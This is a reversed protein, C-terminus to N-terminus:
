PGFHREGGIEVTAALARTLWAKARGIAEALPAGRSLEVAIATGLACGTGRVKGVPARPAGFRVETVQAVESEGTRTLLVDTALAGALHGGKLLVAQLGDAVLRRGAAVAEELTAIGMGSLAQAEPINPTVLTARALLPGLSSPADEFLRGGSSSSLVPDVVVAGTFGRLATVVADSQARGPLMGVKVTLGGVPARELAIRLSRELSAADRPEVAIVGRHAALHTALDTSQETLASTVIRAEAGLARATLYDRVVGAGGTPDLGGVVVVVAVVAVHGDGCRVRDPVVDIDMDVGGRSGEGREAPEARSEMQLANSVDSDYVVATEAKIRGIAGSAARLSTPTQVGPPPTTRMRIM